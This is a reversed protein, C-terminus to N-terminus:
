SFENALGTPIQNFIKQDEGDNRVAISHNNSGM